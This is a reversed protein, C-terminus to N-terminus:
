KGKAKGKLLKRENERRRDKEVGVKM